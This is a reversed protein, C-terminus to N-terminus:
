RQSEVSSGHSDSCHNTATSLSFPGAVSATVEPLTVKWGERQVCVYRVQISFRLSQHMERWSHHPWRM